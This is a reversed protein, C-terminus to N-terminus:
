ISLLPNMIKQEFKTHTNTNQELAILLGISEHLSSSRNFLYHPHHIVSHSQM